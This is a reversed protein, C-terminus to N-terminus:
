CSPFLMVTSQFSTCYIEAICYSSVFLVGANKYQTETDARINQKWHWIEKNEGQSVRVGKRYTITEWKLGKLTESTINRM